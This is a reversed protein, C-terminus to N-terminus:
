VLTVPNRRLIGILHYTRVDANHRHDFILDSGKPPMILGKEDQDNLLRVNPSILYPTDGQRM